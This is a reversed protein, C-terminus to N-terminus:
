RYNAKNLKECNKHKFHHPTANARDTSLAQRLCQQTPSMETDKVLKLM